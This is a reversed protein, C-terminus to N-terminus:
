KVIKGSSLFESMFESIKETEKQIANGKIQEKVFQDLFMKLLKLFPPKIDSTLFIFPKM